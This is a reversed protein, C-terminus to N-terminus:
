MDGRSSLFFWRSGALYIDDWFMVFHLMGPGAAPPGGVANSAIAGRNRGAFVRVASEVSIPISVSRSISSQCRHALLYARDVRFFCGFFYMFVQINFLVCCVKYIGVMGDSDRFSAIWPEDARKLAKHLAKVDKLEPLDEVQLLKEAYDKATVEQVSSHLPCICLYM